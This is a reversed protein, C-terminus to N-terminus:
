YTSPILVHQTALAKSILADWLEWSDQNQSVKEDVM